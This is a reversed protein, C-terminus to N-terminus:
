TSKVIGFSMRAVPFGTPFASRVEIGFDVDVEACVVIIEFLQRIRGLELRRSALFALTDDVEALFRIRPFIIVVEALFASGM